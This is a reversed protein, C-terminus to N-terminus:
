FISLFEIIIQILIYIKLNYNLNLYARTLENLFTVSAYTTININTKSKLTYFNLLFFFYGGSLQRSKKRKQYKKREKHIPTYLPTYTHYLTLLIVM